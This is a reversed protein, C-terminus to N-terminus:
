IRIDLRSNVSGYGTTATAIVPSLQSEVTSNSAYSSAAYTSQQGGGRSQDYTGNGMNGSTDAGQGTGTGNMDIHVNLTQGSGLRTQMEPLQAALTKALEGHDLSIQATIVDKSATTSISINGFEDSRMGVRMESQGMSHILKATNIVSSTQPSVDSASAATLPATAASSNVGAHQSSSPTLSASATSQAQVTAIAAHSAYTVQIPVANQGQSSTTQQVGAQFESQDASIKTHKGAGTADSTADTATDKSESEGDTASTGSQVAKSAPKLSSVGASIAVAAGDSPKNLSVVQNAAVASANPAALPM